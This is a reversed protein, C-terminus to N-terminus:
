GSREPQVNRQVPGFVDLVRKVKDPPLPTGLIARLNADLHATSGTGTLVSSVGPQAAAFKYAAETVTRTDPDLLWDLPAGPPVAHADLLGEAQWGRVIERVADADTLISRVACMVVVGLGRGAARPLV